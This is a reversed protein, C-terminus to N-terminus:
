TWRLAGERWAYAVGALLIALFLFMEIVAPAGVRTVVLTWPYMFLMEMDFALFVMTVPYWRVHFRSFAHEVPPLGGGFAVADVVPRAVALFASLGYVLVVLVVGVLLLVGVPGFQVM